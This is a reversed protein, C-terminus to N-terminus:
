AVGKKMKWMHTRYPEVAYRTGAITDDEEEIFSDLVRENKDMKHMFKPFEGAANPCKTRHIHIKFSRLFDVSDKLSNPGKKTPHCRFRALVFDKIRDPEACDAFIDRHKDFGSAEIKAVWQTNTLGTAYQEYFIYIEGDKMGMGMLTSAHNFGFDMGWSVNELTDQDYDFDHIIVRHFVRASNINGWEGLCYVQYHYPDTDKFDELTQRDEDTLFWNDKYTTKLVLNRADPKDFFRVKLWHDVDIPNFSLFIQKLVLAFGRLRIELQRYESPSIESAEEIWIKTLVGNMFTISKLKEVNDLGKFIITNKNPLYTITMDSERVLFSSELDLMAIWQRFLVFTSHRNTDGTKRVVLVNWGKESIVGLLIKQAVFVSKGSGAGGYYIERRFATQLYPLYVDNIPLNM